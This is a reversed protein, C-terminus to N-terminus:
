STHRRCISLRCLAAFCGSCHFLLASQVIRKMVIGTAGAIDHATWPCEDRRCTHNDDPRHRAREEMIGVGPLQEDIGACGNYRKESNEQKLVTLVAIRASDM